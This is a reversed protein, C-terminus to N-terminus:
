IVDKFYYLARTLDSGSLEERFRDFLNDGTRHEYENYIAALQDRTLPELTEFIAAEDTGLGDMAGRIKEVSLVATWGDPIGNGNTPLPLIRGKSKGYFYVGALFVLIVVFIIIPKKYM